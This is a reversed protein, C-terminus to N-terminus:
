TFNSYILRFIVGWGKVMGKKQSCLPLTKMLLLFDPFDAEQRPACMEHFLKELEQHLHSLQLFETCSM